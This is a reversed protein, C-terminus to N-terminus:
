REPVKIRGRIIDSAKEAMMLVGANIHASLLDPMASADCVRLNEIGRIRLQPDCVAEPDSGMRCTGVSHYANAGIRRILEDIEGDTQATRSPATEAGRFPDLAAHKGLERARKVGERLVAIDEPESL